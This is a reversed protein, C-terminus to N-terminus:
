PPCPRRMGEVREGACQALAQDLLGAGVGAVEGLPDACEHVALGRHEIGSARASSARRTAWRAKPSPASSGSSASGCTSSIMTLPAPDTNTSRRPRMSSPATCNAASASRRWAISRIRAGSPRRTSSADGIHSARRGSPERTFTTIGGSASSPGTSVIRRKRRRPNEGSSSTAEPVQDGGSCSRSRAAMAARNFTSTLPPVPDPLVVVSLASEANMGGPSRMTVISSAASSRRWCGCTTRSSARGALRSPRPSTVTRVSTRLANRMRGSRMMTPSTRPASASSMSLAIDLPWSPDSPVTCAPDGSSASRRTSVSASM